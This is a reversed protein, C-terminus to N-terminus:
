GHDAGKSTEIAALGALLAERAVQGRRRKTRRAIRDIRETEPDLRISVGAFQREDKTASM